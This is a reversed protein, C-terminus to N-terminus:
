HNKYYLVVLTPVMCILLVSVGFKIAYAFSLIIGVINLTLGALLFSVCFNVISGLMFPIIKYMGLVLGIAINIIM